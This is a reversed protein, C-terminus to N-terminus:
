IVWLQGHAVCIIPIQINGQSGLFLLLTILLPVRLNGTQKAFTEFNRDRFDKMFRTESALNKTCLSMLYVSSPRYTFDPIEISYSM